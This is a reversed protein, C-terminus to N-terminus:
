SQYFRKDQKQTTKLTCQPLTGEFSSLAVALLCVGPVETGQHDGIGVM